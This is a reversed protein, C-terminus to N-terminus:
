FVLERPLLPLVPTKRVAQGALHLSQLVHAATRGWEAQRREGCRFRICTHGKFTIATFTIARGALPSPVSKKREPTPYSAGGFVTIWVHPLLAYFNHPAIGSCAFATLTLTRRRKLGPELTKFSSQGRVSFQQPSRSRSGM